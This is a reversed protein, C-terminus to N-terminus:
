REQAEQTSLCHSWSGWAGAAMVEPGDCVVDKRVCHALVFGEQRATVKTVALFLAVLVFAM